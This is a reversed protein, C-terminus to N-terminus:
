SARLALGLRTGSAGQWPPRHAWEGMLPQWPSENTPAWPFLRRLVRDALEAPPAFEEGLGRVADWCHVLIEDCGM